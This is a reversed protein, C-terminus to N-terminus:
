KEGYIGWSLDSFKKITLSFGLSELAEKEEDLYWYPEDNFDDILNPYKVKMEQEYERNEFM